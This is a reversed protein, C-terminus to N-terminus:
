HKNKGFKNLYVQSILHYINLTYIFMAIEYVIYLTIKKKQKQKKLAVGTAYLLEWALHGTPAAAALRALGSGSGM